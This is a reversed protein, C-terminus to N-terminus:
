KIFNYGNKTFEIEGMNYSKFAIPLRFYKFDIYFTFHKTLSQPGFAVWKGSEASEFEHHVSYSSSYKIELKHM